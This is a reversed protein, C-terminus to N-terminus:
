TKTVAGDEVPHSVEPKGPPLVVSVKAYPYVVAGGDRLILLAGEAEGETDVRGLEADLATAEAVVVGDGLLRGALNITRASRRLEAVMAEGGPGVFALVDLRRPRPIELRRDERLVLFHYLGIVGALCAAVLDKVSEGVTSTGATGELVARVLTWVLAVVFGLAVLAGVLVILGLFRRRIQMTRERAPDASAARQWITWAPLWLCGGVLGAAISASLQERWWFEGANAGGGYLLADLGLWLLSGIATTAIVLGTLDLVAIALHRPWPIVHPIDDALVAQRRMISWHYIWAAGGILLAPLVDPLFAWMPTVHYDFARRLIEYLGDIGAGITAGAAVALVLYLYIVRLPRRGGRWLDYRWTAAWVAGGSLIWAAIGGWTLWDNSALQYGESLGTLNATLQRIAGNLGIVLFVLAFGTLIYVALDHTTGTDRPSRERWGLRAYMLWAIGWVLVRAGAFIADRISTATDGIDPARLLDSLVSHLGFLAVVSTVAFIAAVYWQRERAQGEETSRSVRRQARQWLGLWIPLGVILAAVYYSTRDRQGSSGALVNSHQVITAVITAVLGSVAYLTALLGAFSLAYIFIRLADWAVVPAEPNGAGESGSIWGARTFVAILVVAVILIGAYMLM